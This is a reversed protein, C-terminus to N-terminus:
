QVHSLGDLFMQKSWIISTTTAPCWPWRPFPGRVWTGNQADQAPTAAEDCPLVENIEKIRKKEKQRKLATGVAHPPEWALPRIPARAVPRHWLWLLALDSRRRDGVGYSMAVGSGKVWQYLGPILGAAEHNKTPNMEAAGCCSSRPGQKFGTNSM